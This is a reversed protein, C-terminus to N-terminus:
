ATFRRLCNDLIRSVDNRYGDHSLSGLFTISGVAFLAGGGPAAGYVMHARVGDYARAAGASLTWTLIEEPTTKFTPGHGDSYALIKMYDPTGLEPAAQDLEFGAAGGGSLGYDGIRDGTVGEFIWSVDPDAAAPTRLYYSGEFMGQVCFGVAAVAQPPLGNRRWMGGYEGDLQHYYEGPESAWARIGGEARRIELVHPLEATRAIKWYFGNGGLYMLKGGTERYDILAELMRRTHYEPHTGTMVVDYGKLLGLGEDDLDEDTIVDFEYGQHRLWDTLHSDASFHRLGSGNPDDFTLYGPRMTLMPRLRSSLSIGSGDSHRNYTSAGFATVVDPNHPYAQWSAARDALAGAFNGRAHNAYAVYTLTSALVLIRAKPGDRPPIVYFPITDSGDANSLVLGYVGSPMDAPITFQLSTDWGCDILDDAHFHIAAYDQPAVTWDMHRGTWSSSRVARGPLNVLALRRSADVSDTVWTQMMDRSFDWAALLHGDGHISPAELQGNFVDAPHGLWRAGFSITDLHAPLALAISGVTSAPQHNSRAEVSDVTISLKGAARDIDVRLRSWRRLALSVGTATQTVGAASTHLVILAGSRLALAIGQGGAADQLSFLTQCSDDLLTPRATLTVSLASPAGLAPLAGWACSGAHVAQERGAYSAALPVAIPVLKMGPGAPNPDACDIRVVSASFDQDALSSIKFDLTGGPRGSFPTVYGIIPPHGSTQPM